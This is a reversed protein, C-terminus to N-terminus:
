NPKVKSVECPGTQAALTQATFPTDVTYDDDVLLNDAGGVDVPVEIAVYNPIRNKLDRVWVTVTETPHARYWAGHEISVYGPLIQHTLEAPIKMCGRDNYVYVLDGNRIGREAATVPNMKALQRYQDKIIATSDFATHARNRSKNTMYLMKYNRGSAPSTYGVFNGTKPNLNNFMSEYGGPVPIYKATWVRWGPGYYKGSPGETVGVTRYGGSATDRPLLTLDEAAGRTGSATTMGMRIYWFPSFFNIYGTTNHLRGPVHIDRFSVIPNSIPSIVDVKGKTRLEDWSPKYSAGYKAEWVDTLGTAEYATKVDELTTPPPPTYSGDGQGFKQLVKAQILGQIDSWTKAEYLPDCM